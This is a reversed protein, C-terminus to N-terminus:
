AATSFNVNLPELGGGAQDFQSGGTDAPNTYAVARPTPTAFTLSSGVLGYAFLGLTALLM